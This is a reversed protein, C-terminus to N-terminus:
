TANVVSGRFITRGSERNHKNVIRAFTKGDIQLATDNGEHIAQILEPMYAELVMAVGEAVAEVIQDNNAVATRNGIRGVMEAVGNENAMFLEGSDPYGGNAFRGLAIEPIKPVSFNFSNGGIGPVWDPIKFGFSGMNNSFQNFGGIMGNILQEIAYFADNAKSRIAGPIEGITNAISNKMDTFASKIEDAGSRWYEKFKDLGDWNVFKVALDALDTDTVGITDKLWTEWKAQIESAKTTVTTWIDNMGTKWSGKMMGLKESVSSKINETKHVFNVALNALKSKVDETTVRWNDGFETFTGKLTDIIPVLKNQSEFWAANTDDAAERAPHTEDWVTEGVTEWFLRWEHGFSGMDFFEEISQRSDELWGVLFNFVGGSDDIVSILDDWNDYLETVVYTWSAIGAIVVGLTVNLGGLAIISSSIGGVLGSKFATSLAIIAISVGTIFSAAEPHNDIWDGLDKLRNSLTPDIDSVFGSAFYLLGQGISILADMINAGINSWDHDFIFSTIGDFLDSGLKDWPVGDLFGNIGDTISMFFNYIVNGFNSLTEALNFGTLGEGIKKGIEYSELTELFTNVGTLISNLGNSFTEALTVWEIHLLTGNLFEALKQGMEDFPHTSFLGDAFAIAKNLNEALTAGWEYTDLGAFTEKIKNGVIVGAGYFNSEEIAKKFSDIWPEFNTDVKMEKFMKGYDLGDATSGSGSDNIVNLEDFGMQFDKMAKTAEKTSEAYKKPYKLAKTWTSAGSLKATLENFWNLCEVVRDVLHDIAPTLKNITPAAAAAVSNRFYLLSTSIMDMSKAFKGNIAKSYQYLNDTGEKFSKAIQSFLFRVTRYLAIRGLSKVFKSTGATAKDISKKIGNFGTSVVSLAGKGVSGIKAFGNTLAPPITMEQAMFSKFRQWASITETEEDEVQQSVDPVIKVNGTTALQALGGLDVNALRSLREIATEFEPTNCAASFREIGQALGPLGQAASSIFANFGSFDMSFLSRMSELSDTLAFSGSIGEFASMFTKVKQAIAPDLNNVNQSLGGFDFSALKKLSKVASSISDGDLSLSFTNIGDAIAVIGDAAGTPISAIKSFDIKAIQKAAGVASKTREADINGFANIGSALDKLKTSVDGAASSVSSYLSKLGNLTRELNAISKDAGSIDGDIEISLKDITSGNDAM